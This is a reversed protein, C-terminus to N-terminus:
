KENQAGNVSVYKYYSVEMVHLKSNALSGIRATYENLSGIGMRM